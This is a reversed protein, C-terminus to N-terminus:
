GAKFEAARARQRVIEVVLKKGTKEFNVRCTLFACILLFPIMCFMCQETDKDAHDCM